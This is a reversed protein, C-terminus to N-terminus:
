ATSVQLMADANPATTGGVNLQAKGVTAFLAAVAAAMVFRPQKKNLKLM